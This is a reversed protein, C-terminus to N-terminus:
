LKRVEVIRAYSISSFLASREGFGWQIGEIKWWIWWIKHSRRDHKEVQQNKQSQFCLEVNEVADGLLHLLYQHAEFDRQRWWAHLSSNNSFDSRICLLQAHLSFYEARCKGPTETFVLHMVIGFVIYFKSSTETKWMGFTNLIKFNLNFKM